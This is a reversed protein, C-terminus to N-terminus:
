SIESYYINEGDVTFNVFDTILYDGFIDDVSFGYLYEGDYLMDFFIEPEGEVVYEDGYYYYEDDSDMAYAYYIPTIRDGSNLEYINRAAMGNEDIGDWIGDISVMGNTYTGGNTTRVNRKDCM